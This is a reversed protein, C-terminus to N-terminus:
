KKGYQKIIENSTSQNKINKKLDSLGRYLLNRTKDQSWNFFISIESITMGLFFLKVVKKRSSILKELENPILEGIKNFIYKKSNYGLREQIANQIEKSILINNRRSKRIQDIASSYIIKKIYSTYNKIEKKDDVLKWIKIRVDQLIDEPDIGNNQVNYKFIQSKIYSSFDQLIKEFIEIKKGSNYM